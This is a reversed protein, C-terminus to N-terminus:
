SHAALVQHYDVSAYYRWGSTSQDGCTSSGYSGVMLNRRRQHIKKERPRGQEGQQQISTTAAQSSTTPSAQNLERKKFWASSASFSSSFSPRCLPPGAYKEQRGTRSPEAM